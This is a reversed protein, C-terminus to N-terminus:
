DGGLTQALKPYRYYLATPSFGSVNNVRNSHKMQTQLVFM